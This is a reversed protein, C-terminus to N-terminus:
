VFTSPPLGGAGPSLRQLASASEADRGTWVILVDRFESMLPLLQYTLSMAGVVPHDARVVGSPHLPEAEHAWATAFKRSHTSLEGIIRRFETDEDDIAVLTQLAAIVQATADAACIPQQDRDWGLFVQRALNAGPQLAPFLATGLPTSAVINLHRDILTAAVDGWGALFSEITHRRPTVVGHDFGESDFHVNM